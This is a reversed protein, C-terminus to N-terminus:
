SAESQEDTEEGNESASPLAGLEEALERAQDTKVRAKAAKKNAQEL